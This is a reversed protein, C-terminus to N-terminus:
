SPTDRHQALRLMKPAIPPLVDGIRMATRPARHFRLDKAESLISNKM